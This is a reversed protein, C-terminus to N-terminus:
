TLPPVPMKGGRETLMDRNTLVNLNGLEEPSLGGAAYGILTDRLETPTMSRYGGEFSQNLVVGNAEAHPVTSNKQIHPDDRWNSFFTVTGASDERTISVNGTDNYRVEFRAGQYNGTVVTDVDAEPPPM